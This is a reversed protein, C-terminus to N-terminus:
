DDDQRTPYWLQGELPCGENNYQDFVQAKSLMTARDGWSLNQNGSHAIAAPTWRLRHGKIDTGFEPWRCSLIGRWSSLTVVHTLAVRM